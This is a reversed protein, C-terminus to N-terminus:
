VEDLCFEDTIVVKYEETFESSFPGTTISIPPVIPCLKQSCVTVAPLFAGRQKSLPNTRNFNSNFFKMSTDTVCGDFDCNFRNKGM